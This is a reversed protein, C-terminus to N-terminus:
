DHFDWPGTFLWALLMMRLGFLGIKALVSMLM